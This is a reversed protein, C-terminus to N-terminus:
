ADPKYLIMIKSETYCALVEAISPCPMPMSCAHRVGCPSLMRKDLEQFFQGQHLTSDFDIRVRQIGEKLVHLAARLLVPLQM